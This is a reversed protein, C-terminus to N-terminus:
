NIAVGDVVCAKVTVDAADMSGGVDFLRAASNSVEQEGWNGKLDVGIISPKCVKDPSSTYFYALKVQLASFCPIGYDIAPEALQAVKNDYLEYFTAPEGFFQSNAFGIAAPVKITPAACDIFVLPYHRRQNDLASADGGPGHGPSADAHNAVAQATGIDFVQCLTANVGTNKATVYVSPVIVGGIFGYVSKAFVNLESGGALTMIKTVLRQAITAIRNNGSLGACYVWKNTADDSQSDTYDIKFVYAKGNNTVNFAGGQAPLLTNDGTDSFVFNGTATGAYNPNINKVHQIPCDIVLSSYVGEAVLLPSAYGDSNGIWHVDPGFSGGFPHYPRSNDNVSLNTGSKTIGPTSAFEVPAVFTVLFSAATGSHDEVPDGFARIAHADMRKLLVIRAAKMTAVMNGGILIDTTLPASGSRFTLTQVGGSGDTFTFSDGPSPQGTIKIRKCCHTGYDIKCLPVMANSAGIGMQGIQCSRPITFFAGSRFHWFSKGYTVTHAVISGFKLHGKEGWKDKGFGFHEGTAIDIFFSEGFFDPGVLTSTFDKAIADECVIGWKWLHPREFGDYIKRITIDANTTVSCLGPSFPIKSVHTLDLQITRVRMCALVGDIGSGGISLYQSPSLAEYYSDTPEGSHLVNTQTVYASATLATIGKNAGIPIEYFNGPTADFTFTFTRNLSERLFPNHDVLTFTQGETPNTNLVMDFANRESRGYYDGFVNQGWFVQSAKRFHVGILAAAAGVAENRPEGYFACGDIWVASNARTLTPDPEIWSDEGVAILALSKVNRLSLGKYPSLGVADYTASTENEFTCNEFRVQHGVVRILCYHDNVTATGTYGAFIINRFTIRNPRRGTVGRMIIGLCNTSVIREDPFPSGAYGLDYVIAPNPSSFTFRTNGCGNFEVGGFAYQEAESMDYNGNGLDVRLGVTGSLTLTQIYDFCEKLQDSSFEGYTFTNDGIAVRITDQGSIVTSM